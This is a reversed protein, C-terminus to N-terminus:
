GCRDARSVALSEALEPHGSGAVRGRRFPAAFSEASCTTREDVSAHRIAREPVPWAPRSFAPSYSEGECAAARPPFALVSGRAGFALHSTSQLLKEALPSSARLPSKEPPPQAAARAAAETTIKTIRKGAEAQTERIIQELEAAQCIREIKKEASGQKKGQAQSFSPAENQDPDVLVSEQGASAGEPADAAPPTEKAGTAIEADLVQLLLRQAATRGSMADLTLQKAVAAIPTVPAAMIVDMTKGQLAEYLARHFRAKLLKAPGPKGSPNGSQGKQFRTHVPPRGRGIAYTQTQITM